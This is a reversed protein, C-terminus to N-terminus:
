DSDAAWPLPYGPGLGQIMVTMWDALISDQIGLAPAVDRPSLLFLGFSNCKDKDLIFTVPLLWSTLSDRWILRGIGLEFDALLESARGRVLDELREQVQLYLADYITEPDWAAGGLYEPDFSFRHFPGVSSVLFHPGRRRSDQLLIIDCLLQRARIRQQPSRWPGDTFFYEPLERLPPVTFQGSGIQSPITVIHESGVESPVTVLPEAPTEEVMSVSLAPEPDQQVSPPVHQPAPQRDEDLESQRDEPPRDLESPPAPQVTKKRYVLIPSHQQQQRTGQSALVEEIRLPLSLFSSGLNSDRFVATVPM